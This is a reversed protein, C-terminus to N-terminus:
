AGAHFSCGQPIRILESCLKCVRVVLYISWLIWLMTLLHCLVDWTYARLSLYRFCNSLGVKDM